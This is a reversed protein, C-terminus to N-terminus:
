DLEFPVEDLTNRIRPCIEILYRETDAVTMTAPDYIRQTYVIEGITVEDPLEQAVVIAKLARGPGVDVDGGCWQGPLSDADPRVVSAADYMFGDDGIFSTQTRGRWPLIRDSTNHLEFFAVPRRVDPSLLPDDVLRALELDHVFGTLTLELIEGSVSLGTGFATGAEEDPDFTVEDGAVDEDAGQRREPASEGTLREYAEKIRLFRERSGGQDPHHTKLKARFARRIEERDADPSVGLVEHHSEM